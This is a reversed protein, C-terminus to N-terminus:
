VQRQLCVLTEIHKTQPFMDCPQIQKIKYNKQSLLLNLDRALTSPDCSMYIIKAPYINAIANIVNKDCFCNQFVAFLIVFSRTGKQRREKKTYLKQCGNM